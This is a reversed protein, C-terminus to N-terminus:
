SALFAPPLEGELTAVLPEGAQWDARLLSFSAVDKQTTGHRHFGRLVGEPSFGAKILAAQSRANGVDAWAGLRELGFHAFALTAVLRKSEANLGSGWWRRGFWTGVVARRDRVGWDALETIGVIGEEPHVMALALASGFERRADQEAIWTRPQEISTYPGWSFWRTVETDRGLAFLAEADDAEPPRLALSGGRLLM